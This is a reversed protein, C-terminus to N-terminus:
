IDIDVDTGIGVGKIGVDTGVDVGSGAGFDELQFNKFWDWFPSAQQCSRWSFHFNTTGPERISEGMKM